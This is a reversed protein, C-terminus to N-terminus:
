KCGGEFHSFRSSPLTKRAFQESAKTNQKPSHSTNTVNTIVGSEEFRKLLMGKKYKKMRKSLKAIAKPFAVYDPMRHGKTVHGKFSAMEIEDKLTFSKKMEEESMCFDHDGGWKVVKGNTCKRPNDEAYKIDMYLWIREEIDKVIDDEYEPDVCKVNKSISQARRDNLNKLDWQIESPIEGIDEINSDYFKVKNVVTETKKIDMQIFLSASNLFVNDSDITLIELKKSIQTKLAPPNNFM